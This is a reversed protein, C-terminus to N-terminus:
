RLAFTVPVTLTVTSGAIEAPVPPLPEARRIMAAAEDDLMQSGSSRAISVSLVHGTRDMTFTVYAVGQEGRSRAPDPYRKARQLRAVLEGRWSPVANSPAAASAAQAAALPAPMPAPASPAPLEQPSPRVTPRAAPRPPAPLPRVRRPPPSPTPLALAPQPVPPTPSVLPPSVVPPEPVAATPASRPEPAPPEPAPPSTPVPPALEPVPSEPPAPAPEPATLEPTLDLMIAEPVSPPPDPPVSRRLVMWAAGLHLCLMLALCGAWRLATGAGEDM